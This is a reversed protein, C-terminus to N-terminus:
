LSSNVKSNPPRFYSWQEVFLHQEDPVNKSWSSESSIYTFSSIWNPKADSSNKCKGKSTRLTTTRDRYTATQRVPVSYYCHDWAEVLTTWPVTQNALGDKAHSTIWRRNLRVSDQLWSLWLPRHVALCNWLEVFHEREAPRIQDDHSWFQASKIM